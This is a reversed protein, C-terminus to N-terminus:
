KSTMFSTIHSCNRFLEPDFLFYIKMQNILPLVEKVFWLPDVVVYRDFDSFPCGSPSPPSDKM